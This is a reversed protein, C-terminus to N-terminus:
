EFHDVDSFIESMSGFFSVPILVYWQYVYYIKKEEALISCAEHSEDSEDDIRTLKIYKIPHWPIGYWHM